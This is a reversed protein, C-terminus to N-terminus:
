TRQTGDAASKRSGVEHAGSWERRLLLKAQELDRQADLELAVAHRGLRHREAGDGVILGSRRGASM